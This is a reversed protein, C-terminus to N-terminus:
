HFCRGTRFHIPYIVMHLECRLAKEEKEDYEEYSRKRFEDKQSEQVDEASIRRLYIM